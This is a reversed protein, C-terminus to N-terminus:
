GVTAAGVRAQLEDAAADMDAAAVRELRWGLLRETADAVAPMFTVDGDPAIREIGDWRAATANVAVADPESTGPPLDLELRDRAALVPYGGPRGGPAPVHIRRPEDGLLAAVTAATAAATMAHAARGAPLPHPACFLERVVAPDLPEGCVAVAAQYPPPSAPADAPEGGLSGFAGFALREAAHHAIVRVDVAARGAGARAAALQALKAAVEAVNGAGLDPALGLPALVPGVADPYPLAVVRAPVGALDRARVLERVLGVQLPLWAGYPLAALREPVRWWTQRSAGGVIVSPQVRRLLAAVAEVDALDAHAAEVHEPGDRLAAIVMAQGAAQRARELARGAAVLRGLPLGALAELVRGGLDGLGVVVVTDERMGAAM